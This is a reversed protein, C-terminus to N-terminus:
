TPVVSETVSNKYSVTTLYLANTNPWPLVFHCIVFIKHYNAKFVLCLIAYLKWTFVFHHQVSRSVENAFSAAKNFYAAKSEFSEPSLRKSVDLQPM